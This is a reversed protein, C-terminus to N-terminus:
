RNTASPLYINCGPIKLEFCKILQREKSLCQLERDSLNYGHVDLDQSQFYRSQPVYRVFFDDGIQIRRFPIPKELFLKTVM